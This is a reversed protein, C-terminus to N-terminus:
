MEGVLTWGDGLGVEDPRAGLVFQLYESETEETAKHWVFSIVPDYARRLSEVIDEKKDHLVM